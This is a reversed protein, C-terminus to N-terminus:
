QAVFPETPIIRVRIGDLEAPIGQPQPHSGAATAFYVVIAGRSADTEDAGVGVGIVGPRAFLDPEYREKVTRTFDVEADSPVIQAGGSTSAAAFNGCNNGVFSFTHGGAQFASVVQGIPNGITQASNGAFLLAVPNPTGDNSVILSGSDGGASFSGSGSVVVQNTYSITFKKGSNCGAQYQISVSTNVSQVSGTTYGTTRGSKAVALGITAAQTTNCPVGVDLIAGTTDVQGSRATSLAVDVNATGLRVLNGAFDGVINSNSTTARCGVDILGPQIDDEGTTASGARALVHNNSLISLVGDRLVLAGLTGGCCFSRSADLSSGGSTGMKVPPTQKVQHNAGGDALVPAAVLALAMLALVFGARKM